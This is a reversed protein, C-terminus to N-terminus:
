RAKALYYDLLRLDELTTVKINKEDGIVANVKVRTGDFLAAEDTCRFARAGLRRYRDALLSRKFVQPTQALFLVSRNETRLVTKKEPNVRKVTATVPVVCVAAGSQRAGRIMRKVLERNVLPRAADHVLVWECGESVHRVANRVSEARTKGGNVLRVATLGCRRLWAGAAKKRSPHLAVLIEKFSFARQIRLVTHVFLPLGRVLVFPKPCRAGLRRGRGASPIIAAVSM